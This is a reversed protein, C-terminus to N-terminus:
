TIQVSGPNASRAAMAIIDGEVVWLGRAAQDLADEFMDFLQLPVRPAPGDRGLKSTGAVPLNDFRGASDEIAEVALPNPDKVHHSALPEKPRALKALTVPFSRLGPVCLDGRPATASSAVSSWTQQFIWFGARVALELLM